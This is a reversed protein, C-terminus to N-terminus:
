LGKMGKAQMVVKGEYEVYCREKSFRVEAGKETARRLSFLNVAVGSIYYLEKLTVVQEENSTV